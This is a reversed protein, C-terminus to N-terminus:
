SSMGRSSALPHQRRFENYANAFSEFASRDDMSYARIMGEWSLNPPPNNFILREALWEPFGAFITSDSLRVGKAMCWGDLFARLRAL